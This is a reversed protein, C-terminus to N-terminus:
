QSYPSGRRHMMVIARQNLPTQLTVLVGARFQHLPERSHDAGDDPPRCPAVLDDCIQRLLRKQAHETAQRVEIGSGLERRPDERNRVADRDIM